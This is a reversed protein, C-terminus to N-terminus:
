IQGNNRSLIHWAAGWTDLQASSSGRLEKCYMGLQEGSRGRIETFYVQLQAWFRGRIETCTDLQARSRDMIETFYARKLSHWM